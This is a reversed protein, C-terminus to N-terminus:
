LPRLSPPPTAEAQWPWRKPPLPTPEAVIRELRNILGLMTGVYIMSQAEWSMDVYAYVFHMVIYLTATLAAVSMMDRPMRIVTRVGTTIATAILYLLAIFGGLGAKMWIWLISNHTIYEWWIFGIQPMPWIIYFKNGFGVGTLPAQHVTFQINANEILRYDNSSDDRSGQTPAVVSRIARVPQAIMSSSNWFAAVYLAALVALPPIILWFARRREFYLVIAIVCMAIILTIFAARRQNAVFTILLVPLAAMLAARMKVSGRYIWCAMLMVFLGNLHISNSHEAIRELGALRFNLEAAVYWVGSVADLTLAVVFVWLLQVVHERQTILNGTLILMAIMYFIIRAEWLAIVLSGGRGLGYVLGFIIFGIFVLGPLTLSGVHFSVKRQVTARALWSVFTLAIFLEAPSIIFANGAYLISEASSFNKVFPYWPTLSSDGVLTLGVLLYVGYRPQHLTAFVAGAFILWAIGAPSTEQREMLLAVIGSIGLLALYWLWWVLRARRQQSRVNMATATGPSTSVM